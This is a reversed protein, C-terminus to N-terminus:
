CDSSFSVIYLIDGSFINRNKEHWYLDNIM